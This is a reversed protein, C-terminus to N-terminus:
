MGTVARQVFALVAMVLFLVVSLAMWPKGAASAVGIMGGTGGFFLMVYAIVAWRVQRFEVQLVYDLVLQVALYALMLGIQIYYLPPRQHGPARVLLYGLPLATLLLALGLWYEWEPKEALRSVFVLISLTFIAQAVWAGLLDLREM